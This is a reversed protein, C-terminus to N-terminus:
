KGGKLVSVKIMKVEQLPRDSGDRKANGIKVVVDMGELVKGFVAHKDDLFPTPALTIFFQSGGTDPGANAMSLIGPGNHRLKPSFEDKIAYGPGGRGTGTPDGGQIMFAPIVRHFLIGDYYGKEVLKLFNGATVPADKLFLQIKITGLTTEMTVVPDKGSTAAPVQRSLWKAINGAMGKESAFLATGHASGPCIQTELVAHGEKAAEQLPKVQETESEPSLIWLPREGFAKLPALSDVGKYDPGPSLLVASLLRPDKAMCELALSCGISAGVLSIRDADVDPRARLWALAAEADLHASPFPNDADKDNKKSAGHGRLDIALVHIGAKHLPELLPAWAKHDKGVEHLLLVAPAKAGKKLDAPRFEAFIQVGDETKIAPKPEAGFLPPLFPLLLLLALRSSMPNKM